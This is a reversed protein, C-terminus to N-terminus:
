SLEEVFMDAAERKASRRRPDRGELAPIGGASIRERKLLEHQGNLGCFESIAALWRDVRLGPDSHLLGAFSADQELEAERSEEGGERLSAAIESIVQRWRDRSFQEEFDGSSVMKQLAARTLSFKKLAVRIGDEISLYGSPIGFLLPVGLARVEVTAWGGRESLLSGSLGSFCKFWEVMEIARMLECAAVSICIRVSPVEGRENFSPQESEDQLAPPDVITLRIDKGLDIATHVCVSSVPPECKGMPGISAINQLQRLGKVIRKWREGFRGGKAEFLHWEGSSDELVFDPMEFSEAGDASTLTPKKSSIYISGERLLSAHLFLKVERKPAALWQVAALYAGISGAVYSVVVKESPDIGKYFSLPQSSLPSHSFCSAILQLRALLYRKLSIREASTLSLNGNWGDEPGYGTNVFADILDPLVILPSQVLGLGGTPAFPTVSIKKFWHKIFVADTKAKAQPAAGSTSSAPAGTAAQKPAPPPVWFGVSPAKLGYYEMRIAM